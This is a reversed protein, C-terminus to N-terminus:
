RYSKMWLICIRGSQKQTYDWILDIDAIKRCERDESIEYYKKLVSALHEAHKRGVYEVGFDDVIIM